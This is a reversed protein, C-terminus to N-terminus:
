YRVLMEKNSLSPDLFLVGMEFLNIALSTEPRKVLEQWAENMEASWNIDDVIVVSGSHLKPLFWDFYRLTPEKRHNGDIFAVDIKELGSVTEQLTEDFNGEVLSVNKLKMLKFNEKAVKAIEPSGELTIVKAAKNAKSLYGTTIGLSTGLEVITNPQTAEVLRFMLEAYKKAKVASDAISKVSRHNSKATKSGAGLDKVTLVREDTQNKKRVVDLAIFSYFIREKDLAKTLAASLKPDSVGDFAKANLLYKSYTAVQRFL